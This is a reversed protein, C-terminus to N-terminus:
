PIRRCRFWGMSLMHITILNPGRAHVQISLLLTSPISRTGPTNRLSHRRLTEGFLICGLKWRSYKCTRRKTRSLIGLLLHHKWELQDAQQFVQPQRTQLLLLLLTTQLCHMFLYLVHIYLVTNLLLLLIWKCECDLLLLGLTLQNLRTICECQLLFSVFSRRQPPCMRRGQIKM